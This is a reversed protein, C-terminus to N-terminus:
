LVPATHVDFFCLQDYVGANRKHTDAMRGPPPPFPAPWPMQGACQSMGSSSEHSGSSPPTSNTQKREQQSDEMLQNQSHAQLLGAVADVPRDRRHSEPERECHCDTRALERAAQTCRSRATWTVTHWQAKSNERMSAGVHRERKSDYSKRAAFRIRANVFTAGDSKAICTNAHAERYGGHM